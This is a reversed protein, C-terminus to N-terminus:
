PSMMFLMYICLLLLVGILNKHSTSTAASVQLDQAGQLPQYQNAGGSAMYEAYCRMRNIQQPSFHDKCSSYSMFNGRDPKATIGNGQCDKLTITSSSWSCGYQDTDPQTDSCLDGTYDSAESEFCPDCSDVGKTGVFTHFLGFVHGFEHTITSLGWGVASYDVVVLGSFSQTPMYAFSSPGGPVIPSVLVQISRSVHWARPKTAQEIIDLPHLVAPTARPNVHNNEVAVVFSTSFQGGVQVDLVKIMHDFSIGTDEFHKNVMWAAHSVRNITVNINYSQHTPIIWEVHYTQNQYNTSYMDRVFPLDCRTIANRCQGHVGVALTLSIFLITLAFM